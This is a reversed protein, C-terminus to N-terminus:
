GRNEAEILLDIELENHSRFYFLRPQIGRNFFYKITEQICFNEFLAVAMPGNLLHEKNKIGTM